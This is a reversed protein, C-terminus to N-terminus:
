PSDPRPEYEESPRDRKDRACSIFRVVAVMRIRWGRIRSLVIAGVICVCHVVSGSSVGDVIAGSPGTGIWASRILDAADILM